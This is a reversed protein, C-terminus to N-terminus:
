IKARISVLRIVISRRDASLQCTGNQYNQYSRFVCRDRVEEKSQARSTPFVSFSFITKDNGPICDIKTLLNGFMNSSSTFPKTDVMNAEHNELM